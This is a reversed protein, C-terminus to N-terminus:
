TNRLKTPYVEHQPDWWLLHLVSGERVGWLRKKATVRLSILTDAEINRQMLHKRAAPSILRVEVHHHGGSRRNRLIENWTLKEIESLFKLIETADAQEIRQGFPGALDLLSVRWSPNEGGTGPGERPRKAASVRAKERVRKRDRPTM